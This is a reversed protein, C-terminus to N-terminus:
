IWICLKINPDVSYLSQLSVSRLPPYVFAFCSQKQMECKLETSSLTTAAQRPDIFDIILPAEQIGPKRAAEPFTLFGLAISSM